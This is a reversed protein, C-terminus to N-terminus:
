TYTLIKVTEYNICNFINLSYYGNSKNNLLYKCM